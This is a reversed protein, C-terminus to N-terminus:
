GGTRLCDRRARNVTREMTEHLSQLSFGQRTFDLGGHDGSGGCRQEQRCCTRGPCGGRGSGRGGARGGRLCRLRLSIAAEELDPGRDDVDCGLLRHGITAVPRVVDDRASSVIRQLHPREEDAMALLSDDEHRDVRLAPKGFVLRGVYAVSTVVRTRFRGSGKSRLAVFDGRGVDNEGARVGVGGRREHTEPAVRVRSIQVADLFRSDPGDDLGGGVRVFRFKPRGRARDPAQDRLKLPGVLRGPERDVILHRNQPRALGAGARRDGRVGVHRDM